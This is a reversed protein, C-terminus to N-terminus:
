YSRFPTCTLDPLRIASQVITFAFSPFHHTPPCRVPWESENQPLAPGAVSIWPAVLSETTISAFYFPPHSLFPGHVLLPSGPRPWRSWPSEPSSFLLPPPTAPAPPPKHFLRALLTVADFFFSFTTRWSPFHHRIPPLVPRAAPVAFLISPTPASEMAYSGARASTSSLQDSCFHCRHPLSFLHRAFAFILPAHSLISEAIPHTWFQPTHSPFSPV